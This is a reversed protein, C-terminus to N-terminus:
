RRLPTAALTPIHVLQNLIHPCEEVCNFESKLHPCRELVVM